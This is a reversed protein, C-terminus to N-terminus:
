RTASPTRKKFIKSFAWLKFSGWALVLASIVGLVLNIPKQFTRYIAGTAREIFGQQGAEGFIEKRALVVATTASGAILLRPHTEIWALAKAPAERILNLFQSREAAPLKALDDAHRSLATAQDLTLRRATDLGEGGLRSGIPVALGPHKAATELATSGFETALKQMAVPERVLARLSNQALDAPVGELAHLVPAKAGKLAQLALLGHKETQVAVQKVLAEGGEREAQELVERIARAGGFEALERATKEATEGAGRRLLSEALEGAVRVAAGGQAHVPTAIAMALLLFLANTKM